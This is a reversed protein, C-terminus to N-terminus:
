ENPNMMKGIFLVSNTQNERIIFVFPHDAKFAPILPVSTEVIVVATVAAAETGEENVEIFSKHLVEDIMLGADAINTFDAGPGFAIGMGLNTLPKILSKEYKMEFKPMSFFLESYEFSQTWQEWNDTNLQGIVEDVTHGPNPLLISMSFVSDGYALDIAQFTENAFYPFFTQGMNMMDVETTSGDELRFNDTYTDEPDFEHLWAGKFYIANILYMVVDPEIEGSIISEILNNTNDKVWGNIIDKAAPAAFDLAAVESDYFEQNVNLFEQRVPFGQRYWISNALQLQVAPDLAPLLTLLQQFGANAQEITLGNQELTAMMDAKTQGDAGNVTMSLATAVSMPSIFINMDAEEKQLEQFLKFGFTNNSLTLDCAEPNETCDITPHPNPNDNASNSDCSAVFLLPAALLFFLIPKKM